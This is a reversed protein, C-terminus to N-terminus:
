VHYKPDDANFGTVLMAVARAYAVAHTRCLVKSVIWKDRAVDSGPLYLMSEEMAPSNVSAMALTSGPLQLNTSHEVMPNSEGDESAWGRIHESMKICRVSVRWQDLESALAHMLAVQLVLTKSKDTVETVMGIPKVKRGLVEGIELHMPWKATMAQADMGTEAGGMRKYPGNGFSRRHHADGNLIRRAEWYDLSPLKEETPM